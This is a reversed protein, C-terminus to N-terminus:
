CQKEEEVSAIIESWYATSTGEKGCVVAAAHNALKTADVISTKLCLALTLASIVTDGAGSVDLVKKAYTPLSVIERDAMFILVGEDGRTIVLNDCQIRDYLKWAVEHFSEMDPIAANMNKKLESLNPKFVTVGEYVFFNNVKPDVTVIINHEKAIEILSKILSKTLVGKNYDEIILGTLKPAIDKIRSIIEDEIKKSIPSKDERDVRVVQQQPATIRTKITSERSDDISLYDVNIDQELLLKKFIDANSDAGLVGFLSVNAGLTTLNLAANAAGGLRYEEAYADVIPVPAEPSIRNIKGIIYHDLMVDGIVAINVEKARNSYSKIINTEM